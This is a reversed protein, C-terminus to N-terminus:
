SGAPAAVRRAGDFRRSWYPSDIQEVRVQQGSRPSHIFRGDGIYIGVHSFARKLTNFFVLDGPQLADRDVQPLGARQAQEASRRPLTIGLVTEVVHRTFGSCDFGAAASNGGRRYHVDIFNMATIVLDGAVERPAPSPQPLETPSAWGRAVLLDALADDSAEQAGAASAALLGALALAAILPRALRAIPVARM